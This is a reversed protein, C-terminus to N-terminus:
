WVLSVDGKFNERFGDIFEVEATFVFVAPNMMKGKFTGDWGNKEDNIPLDKGDYVLVGWRDFVKLSRVFKAGANGFGNFFDNKGDGNPSFATPFYIPRKKEVKILVDDTYICGKDDTASITYRTDDAPQVDIRPCHDGTPTCGQALQGRM